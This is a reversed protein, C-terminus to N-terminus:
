SQLAGIRAKRRRASGKSGCRRAKRTPVKRVHPAKEGFCDTPLSKKATLVAILSFSSPVRCAVEKTVLFHPDQHQAEVSSSLRTRKREMARTCGIFGFKV